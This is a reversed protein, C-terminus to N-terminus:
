EMQRLSARNLPLSLICSATLLFAIVGTLRVSLLVAELQPSILKQGVFAACYVLWYAFTMLLLMYHSAEVDDKAPQKNTTVLVVGAISAIASIMVSYDHWSFNTMCSM